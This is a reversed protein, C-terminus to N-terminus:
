YVEMINNKVELKPMLLHREKEREGGDRAWEGKRDREIEKEIERYVGWVGWVYIYIYM